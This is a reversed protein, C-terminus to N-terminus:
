EPRIRGEPVSTHKYYDGARRELLKRFELDLLLPFLEPVPIGLTGSIEDAHRWRGLFRLVRRELEGSLLRNGSASKSPLGIAQLVEEAGTVPTAGERLLRNGGATHPYLPSGPVAMVERGQELAARATILAGSKSPAEVVVVGRSMGSILRNRMPFHHRLPPTGPPLESVLAGRELIRDRLSRSEPPYLIDVGCGLVAITDGGGRLAGEHASTDIGRAMGSVVTMGAFALDVALLQAFERGTETAARSGVLAVADPTPGGTGKWYLMLPADSVRALMEPYENSGLPLLRIGAQGCHELIREPAEGSGRSDIEEIGRALIGQDARSLPVQPDEATIEERLASLHRLTFGPVLSLRLLIDFSGSRYPM